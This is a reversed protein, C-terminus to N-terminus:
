ACDDASEDKRRSLRRYLVGIGGGDPDCGFRQRYLNEVLRQNGLAGYRDNFEASVGFPQIIVGLHGGSRELEGAWYALGGDDAPRGYYAVYAQLVQQESADFDRQSCVQASGASPWGWALVVLIALARFVSTFGNFYVAVGKRRSKKEGGETDRREDGLGALSRAVSRAASRFDPAM